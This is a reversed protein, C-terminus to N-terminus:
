PKNTAEPEKKHWFYKGFNLPPSKIHCSRSCYGGGTKRNDYLVYTFWGKAKDRVWINGENCKIAFPLRGYPKLMNDWDTPWNLKKPKDM